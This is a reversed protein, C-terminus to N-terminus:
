EAPEEATMSGGAENDDTNDAPPETAEELEEAAPATTEGGSPLPEFFVSRLGRSIAAPYISAHTEQEYLYTDFSLGQYNRSRVQANFRDHLEVMNLEDNVEWSGVTSFVVENLVPHTLSFSQEYNYIYENAYWYSPSIIVWRAFLEPRTLLAWTTFLGGYSHGSLTRDEASIPYREDLVPLLDDAIFDLFAPAGGSNAQMEEGYGGTAFPIPTYDRTRTMQYLNENEAAGPYAIAVVFAEPLQSHRRPDSLHEVVNRAIAFSYDADLLVILPYEDRQEDTGYSDPLAVRIEYTQETRRDPGVDRARLEFTETHPLVYPGGEKVNDRSCAALGFTLSAICLAAIPKWM